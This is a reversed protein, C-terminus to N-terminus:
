EPGARKPLDKPRYADDGRARPDTPADWTAYFRKRYQNGDVEIENRCYRGGEPSEDEFHLAGRGMARGAATHMDKAEDPIPRFHGLQIEFDIVGCLDAIERNKPCRALFWAAQLLQLWPYEVKEGAAPKRQNAFLVQSATWLGTVVAPANPEALGIDESTIIFLRRWVWAGYGSTNAEYAWWLAGDADGRRISKQLASIVEDCRYGHKTTMSWPGAGVHEEKDIATV